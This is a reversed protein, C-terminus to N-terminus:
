VTKTLYNAAQHILLSMSAYTIATTSRGKWHSSLKSPRSALDWRSLDTALQNEVTGRSPALM